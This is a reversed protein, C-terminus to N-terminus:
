TLKNHASARRRYKALVEPNELKIRDDDDSERFDDIMKKQRQRCNARQEQWTAWKCNGPEYNGNNNIREITWLSRGMIDLDIPRPGVDEYFARFNKRWRECVTIGRGGYRGWSGDNPNTCRQIM